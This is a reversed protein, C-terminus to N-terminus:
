KSITVICATECQLSNIFIESGNGPAQCEAVYFRISGADEKIRLYVPVITYEASVQPAIALIPYMLKHKALSDLKRGSKAELIFLCRRGNRIGSFISDIEVQGSIHDWKAELQNHPKVSFNYTGQGTAPISIRTEIKLAEEFVGSVLALNVHSTETLKPIASFSMLHDDKWDVEISKEPCSAFIEEDFLFYDSWGTKAKVLAFRTGKEGSSAGLRFVMLDESRLQPDLQSYTQISIHQATNKASFGCESVYEQFVRPNSFEANESNLQDIAKSFLGAM